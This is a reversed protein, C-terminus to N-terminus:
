AVLQKRLTAIARDHIQYINSRTVNYIKAIEIISQEKRYPHLGYKRRIIDASKESLHENINQNILTNIQKQEFIYDPSNHHNKPELNAKNTLTNIDTLQASQLTSIIKALEERNGSKSSKAYKEVVHTPLSVLRNKLSQRQIEKKVWHSAFTSFRIGSSSHYRYAARAIGFNGIQKADEHSISQRYIPSINNVLKKVLNTSLTMYINRLTNLNDIVAHLNIFEESQELNEDSQGIIRNWIRAIIMHQFSKALPVHIRENSCGLLNLAEQREEETSLMDTSFFIKRKKFLYINQIVTIAAQKFPQYNCVLETFKHKQLLVEAGLEKEENELLCISAEPINKSTLDINYAQFLKKELSSSLRLEKVKEAFTLETIKSPLLDVINLNSRHWINNYGNKSM